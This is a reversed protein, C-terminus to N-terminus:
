FASVPIIEPTTLNMFDLSKLVKEPSMKASNPRESIIQMQDMRVLNIWRNVFVDLNWLFHPESEYNKYDLSNSNYYCVTNPSCKSKPQAKKLSSPVFWFCFNFYPLVSSRSSTEHLSNDPIQDTHSKLIKLFNIETWRLRLDRKKNM